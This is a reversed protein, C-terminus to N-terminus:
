GHFRLIAEIVADQEDEALGPFCPLALVERCAAEAAPCDGERYGLSSFCPQTHLPEPYYVATGIGEAGLAAQLAERNPTRIVLQHYVHRGPAEDVFRVVGDLRARYRAAITRRAEAWADLHPLKIRLLAAQLTDLRFNGGIRPHHFKPSAGHARIQRLARALQADDTTVMGGDGFGGLTKTPFFSFCGMRGQAGARAGRGDTAGQSQAADEIAALGAAAYPALDCCQGFLHVPIVARTRPTRRALAAAPDLLLTGPDVDVFVPTAGLRAVAGATAFFTMPPVIVEDGPGIDLAMLAALLADTGSSVGVAHAVGVDAAVEAELRGVDPGLIYHGSDMVRQFAELLAARLPEHARRTDVFPVVGLVYCSPHGAAM